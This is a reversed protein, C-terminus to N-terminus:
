GHRGASCRDPWAAVVRVGAAVVNRLRVTDLSWDNLRFSFAFHFQFCTRSSSDVGVVGATGREASEAGEDADALGLPSVDIRRRGERNAWVVVLLDIRLPQCTFEFHILARDIAAAKPHHVFHIVSPAVGDIKM